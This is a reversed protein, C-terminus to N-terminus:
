TVIKQLYWYKFTKRILVFGGFKTCVFLNTSTQLRTLMVISHNTMESVLSFLLISYRCFSLLELIGGFHVQFYYDGYPVKKRAKKGEGWGM